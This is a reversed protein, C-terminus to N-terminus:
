VVDKVEKTDQAAPEYEGRSDGAPKARFVKYILAAIAGGACPGMWYLWHEIWIGKVIAPGVTRAPNMSSGTIPVAFLHCATISLGIALPASGKVDTRNEDCVGFVTLVLVMTIVLEIGFAQGVSLGDRPYTAGLSGQDAEPTVVYLILSGLIAGICQVIIYLTAKIPKMKGAVCMGVSVAPNIHCGSIHGIAQAITAVTIGFSLAIQVYAASGGGSSAICSGCGVFVLILTGLLEALLAKWIYRDRLVETIGSMEAFGM